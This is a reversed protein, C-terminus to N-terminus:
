RSKLMRSAEPVHGLGLANVSCRPVGHGAKECSRIPSSRDATLVRLGPVPPAPLSGTSWPRARLLLTPTTPVPQSPQAVVYLPLPMLERTQWASRHSMARRCQPARGQGRFARRRSPDTSWDRHDRNRVGLPPGNGAGPPGAGNVMAQRLLKQRWLRNPRGVKGKQPANRRLVARLISAVPFASISASLYTQWTAPSTAPHASSM